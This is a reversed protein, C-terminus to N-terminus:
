TTLRKYLTYIIIYLTKNIYIYSINYSTNYVYCYKIIKSIWRKNIITSTLAHHELTMSSELSLEQELADDDSHGPYFTNVALIHLM